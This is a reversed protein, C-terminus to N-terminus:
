RCGISISDLEVLCVLHVWLQRPQLTARARALSGSRTSTKTPWSAGTAFLTCDLAFHRNPHRLPVAAPPVLCPSPEAIARSFGVARLLLLCLASKVRRRGSLVGAREVICSYIRVQGHPVPSLRPEPRPLYRALQWLGQHVPSVPRCLDQMQRRPGAPLQRASRRSHVLPRVCCRHNETFGPAQLPRIRRHRRWSAAPEFGCLSPRLSCGAICSSQLPMRGSAAVFCSSGPPRPPAVRPTNM